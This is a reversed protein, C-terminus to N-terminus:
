DKRKPAVWSSYLEGVKRRLDEVTGGNVIVDDAKKRAENEVVQAAIRRTLEEPALGKERWRKMRVVDPSVVLVVRDFEKEYGGEFIQSAEAVAVRSGKEEAAAFQKRIEAIVLPHIAAELRRRAAADSFVERALRAKDVAASEALFRKGFLEEVARSGAKGPGYLGAVIEDADFVAAGLSAFFEGATSKGSAVGGTLGVRLM